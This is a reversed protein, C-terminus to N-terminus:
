EKFKDNRQLYATRHEGNDPDLGTMRMIRFDNATLKTKRGNSAPPASDRVVGPTAGYGPTTEEQGYNSLRRDLEAYLESDSTQYGENVLQREIRAAARAKDADDQLWDNNDDIWSQAAETIKTKEASQEQQRPQEKRKKNQRARERMEIKAEMLEDNLDNYQGLEGEDLASNRRTTLDKVKQELNETEKDEYSSLRERAEAIQKRLDDREDEAESARTEASKRKWVEKNIRKGVAESYWDDDDINIDHNIPENSQDEANQQEM